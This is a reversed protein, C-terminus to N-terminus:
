FSMSVERLIRTTNLVPAHQEQGFLQDIVRDNSDFGGRKGQESPESFQLKSLDRNGVTGNRYHRKRSSRRAFLGGVLMQSRHPYKSDAESETGTGDKLSNRKDTKRLVCM